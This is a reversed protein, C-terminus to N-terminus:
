QDVEEQVTTVREQNGSDQWSHKLLDTELEVSLVRVRTPLVENTAILAMLTALAALRMM